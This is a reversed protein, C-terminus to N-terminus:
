KEQWQIVIENSYWIDFKLGIKIARLLFWIWIEHGMFNNTYKRVDVTPYIKSPFNQFAYCSTCVWVWVSAFFFILGFNTKIPLVLFLKIMCHRMSFVFCTLFLWLAASHQQWCHEFLSNATPISLSRTSLCALSHAFFFFCCCCCCFLFLETEYYFSQAFAESFVANRRYM